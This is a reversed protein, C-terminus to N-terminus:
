KGGCMRLLILTLARRLDNLTILAKDRFWKTTTVTATHTPANDHQFLMGDGYVEPYYRESDIDFPM